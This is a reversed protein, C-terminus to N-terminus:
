KRCRGALDVLWHAFDEPTHERDAKGLIKLGKAKRVENDHYRVVYEPEGFKIPMVPIASPDCGVIYLWTRKRAKHGWWYQDVPLTWGGFEDRGCGPAPLGAAPWLSSCEPHELVGGLVRVRDVAFIALQKEDPRPKAFQRLRGWARCPPHAVVQCGGDFLRADRDACWADVGQMQKYISDARVFLAAIM